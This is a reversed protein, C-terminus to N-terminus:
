CPRNPSAARPAVAAPERIAPTPAAQPAPTAPKVAPIIGTAEGTSAAAM